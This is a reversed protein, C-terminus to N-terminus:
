RPLQGKIRGWRSATASSGFTLPAEPLEFRIEHREGQADKVLYNCQEAVPQFVIDQDFGGCSSDAAAKGRVSSGHDFDLRFLFYRQKPDCTVGEKYAQAMILVDEGEGVSREDDPIHQRIAHITLFEAKGHLPPCAAAEAAAPAEKFTARSIGQCADKSQDFRWADPVTGGPTGFHLRVEWAWHVQDMGTATAYLSYVGPGSPTRHVPGECGNWQLSFAAGADASRTPALGLLALLTAAVALRAM